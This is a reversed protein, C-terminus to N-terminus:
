FFDMCVTSKPPLLLRADRAAQDSDSAVDGNHLLMELSPEGMFAQAFTQSTFVLSASSSPQVVVGDPDFRVHWPGRNEPMDVDDVRFTYEGSAEPKLRALAKPVDLVRWMVHRDLSVKVGQDMFRSVFPGDSPEYWVLNSRNICLGILTALISEYGRRTSWALEGVRLDNWFGGEMSVWAYAEVPDGAAYIMPPRKGFREAWQEKTRLNLGSHSKAFSHYCGDLLHADAPLLQRIPLEPTLKPLRHVPCQILSRRGAVEYGVRRYFRDSFAYLAALEFGRDRMASLSWRMLDTGVQGHRAEPLVGVGAVGACPIVGQGRTTMMPVVAFGCVAKGEAEGVYGLRGDLLTESADYAEGRNYVMAWVHSLGQADSETIERFVLPM